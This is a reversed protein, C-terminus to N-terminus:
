GWPDRLTDDLRERDAEWRRDEPGSFLEEIESFSRWTNQEAPVLRAAVRGSVTITVPEGAEVRRVLSRAHQRLERLGVNIM